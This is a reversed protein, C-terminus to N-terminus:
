ALAISEKELASQLALSLDSTVKLWDDEADIWCRLKLSTAAAALGVIVAQPPPNKLVASHAKAIEVLIELVRRANAKPAISIPIEILRESNSLTWNTVPNSILNGNPVILESGNTLLIISARIGIREVQGITNADIQVTDGIKIPREFLLILGSVFNNMINQLGFGLGVGFAGALVAYDGLHIGMGSLAIFFGVVLITYHVMTSIAYPIGRPLHLNPYVDEELAFRVLRSLAFAAWVTVPFALVAGVEIRMSGWGISTALAEGAKQWVPNRLSFIQLAAVMWTAVAIWRIVKATKAYVLDHNHRVMGFRSIPRLSMVALALADLIRVAAYFIVALYSIELMGNGVLFALPVYGLLNAIEAALFVFFAAHLYGRVVREVRGPNEATVCLRKSRLAALIFICVALLEAMLVFRSFVGAPTAAYRVQDVLFAVVTAYLLPLLEASVLRRVIIVTPVLSIAGIVAWLLRPADSPPYLWNSALLALLLATSFPVNFIREAERLGEEKQAHEHVVRRIWCFVAILLAFLFAHVLLAGTKPGLYARAGDVQERLSAKERVVAGKGQTAFSAPNWMAPHTQQFLQALAQAMAKDIIDAGGRARDAEQAVEVQLSYLDNLDAQLAKRTEASRAQVQEIGQIIGPLANSKQASALTAKWTADMDNLTGLLAHQTRVRESLNVQANNMAEALGQWATQASQLNGLAPNAQEFRRDEGLRQDIQRTMEALDARVTGAVTDPSIQGAASKLTATAKQAETVVDAMGIPAPATAAPANTAAANTQANAPAGLAAWLCVAILRPRLIFKLM